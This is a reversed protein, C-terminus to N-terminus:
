KIITEGMLIKQYEKMEGIVKVVSAKHSLLEAIQNRYSEIDADIEKVEDCANAILNGNYYLEEFASM